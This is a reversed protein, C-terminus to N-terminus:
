LVTQVLGVKEVEAGTAKQLKGVGDTNYSFAIQVKAYYSVGKSDKPDSLNVVKVKMQAVPLTGRPDGLDEVAKGGGLMMMAGGGVALLLPVAIMLQKKGLKPM